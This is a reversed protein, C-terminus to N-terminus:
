EDPEGKETPDHPPETSENPGAPADPAIETKQLEGETLQSLYLYLSDLDPFGIRDDEGAKKLSWRWHGDEGWCRLTFLFTDQQTM